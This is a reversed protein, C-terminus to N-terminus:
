RFALGNSRVCVCRYQLCTCCPLAVAVVTSSYYMTGRLTSPIAVICLTKKRRMINSSFIDPRCEPSSISNYWVFQLVFYKWPTCMYIYTFRASSAAHTSVYGSGPSPTRDHPLPRVRSRRLNAKSVSSCEGSSLCIKLKIESRESSNHAVLCTMGWWRPIVRWGCHPPFPSIM